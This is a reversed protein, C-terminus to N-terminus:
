RPVAPLAPKLPYISRKWAALDTRKADDETKVIQFSGGLAEQQQERTIDLRLARRQGRVDGVIIGAVTLEVTAIQDSDTGTSLLLEGFCRADGAGDPCSIERVAVPAGTRWGKTARGDLTGYRRGINAMGVLADRAVLAQDDDLRQGGKVPGLGQPGALLPAASRLWRHLPASSNEQPAILREKVPRDALGSRSDGVLAVVPTPQDPADAVDHIRWAGDQWRLKVDQLAFGLTGPGAAVDSQASMTSAFVRVTARDNKYSRVRYGLPVTWWTMQGARTKLLAESSEDSTEAVRDPISAPSKGIDRGGIALKSGIEASEQATTGGTLLINRQGVYSIAAAAAGDTSKQVGLVASGDRRLLTAGEGPAAPSGGAATTTPAAARTQPEDGSGTALRVVAVLVVLVLVAAGGFRVPRPVAGLWTRVADSFSSM